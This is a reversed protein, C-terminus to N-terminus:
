TDKEDTQDPIVREVRSNFRGDVTETVIEDNIGVENVSSVLTGDDARRTITFGRQLTQHYSMAELRTQLSEVRQAAERTRLREARLLRAQSDDLRQQAHSVAQMARHRSLGRRALKLRQNEQQLRSHLAWQLQHAAQQLHQERLHLIRVPRMRTLRVELDYLRQRNAYLGQSISRELRTACEDIQQAAPRILSLPNRFLAHRGIGTLSSRALELRDRLSRTLRGAQQSLLDLVEQLVPAALEAAATPTPARQDAVLDSITVDTEHGVASIIPITSADIARAVTEENFAWLDELSGGGRGVIMVDIGGLATAQENLRQIASAIEDAAGEGQVRVPHLLVDASPYRRNLTQLMDRIAAGTPSTVIAIRRPYRPVARKRDAAFLGEATLKQKLQRFALELAGQGLPELKRIYFQYQGRPEYVDVYGTAIVELGDEPKFKLSRASSKWMVGRIESREDKLTLYLHGSGARTFNSIEGSLIITTPLSAGIVRKILSTLQTVNMRRATLSPDESAAMRDPDFIPRQAAM